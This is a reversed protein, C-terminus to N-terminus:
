ELIEKKLQTGGESRFVQRTLTRIKQQMAPTLLDGPKADARNEQMLKGLARQHQDIQQPTAEKPLKPLTDELKKHLAVYADVRKKFDAITAADPNTRTQALAPVGASVVALLVFGVLRRSRFWCSM